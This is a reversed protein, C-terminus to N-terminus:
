GSRSASASIGSIASARRSFPTAATAGPGDGRELMQSAPEDVMVAAPDVRQEIRVSRGVPQTVLQRRNLPDPRGGGVRNEQEGQFPRAIGDIAGGEPDQYTVAPEIRRCSVVLGAVEHDIAGDIARVLRSSSAALTSVSRDWPM